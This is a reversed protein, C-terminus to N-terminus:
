RGSISDKRANWVKPTFGTIRKFTSNFSSASMFGCAQAIEEQSADAHARIYRQAYDIRLINLMEPFGMKYTQNVMKSVYTKNTGLRAAVDGLTLGPQLYLRKERMLQRFQVALGSDDQAHSVVNLVAASLSTGTGSKGGPGVERGPLAGHQTSLRSLVHTLSEGNLYPAMDTIIEEAVSSRTEPRYNFRLATPIDRLSIFEAAGFLAFFGFLFYLVSHIATFSLAWAPNNHFVEDHLVIKLLIILFIASVLVIQIELVRISEGRFLFRFLHRPDLHLKIALYIMFGALFAFEAVLVIQFLLITWYYFLRNLDSIDPDQLSFSDSHFRALFANTEDLGMITTLIIAATALVVPIIIWLLYRPKYHFPKILYLFYLCVLPVLTPVAFCVVIHAIAGSGTLPTLVVDGLISLIIFLLLLGLLRFSPTRAALLAHVFIWFLCVLAPVILLPTIDM